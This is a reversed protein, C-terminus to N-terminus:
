NIIVTLYKSLLDWFIPFSLRTLSLQKKAM